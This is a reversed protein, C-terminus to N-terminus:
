ALWLSRTSRAGHHGAPRIGLCFKRFTQTRTCQHATSEWYTQTSHQGGKSGPDFSLTRTHTHTHAHTHTHTYVYTYIYMCVNVLIASTVTCCYSVSKESNKKAWHVVSRHDFSLKGADRERWSGLWLPLERTQSIM